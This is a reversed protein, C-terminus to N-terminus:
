GGPELLGLVQKCAETRHFRPKQPAEHPGGFFAGTELAAIAERRGKARIHSHRRLMAASVHGMMDLM